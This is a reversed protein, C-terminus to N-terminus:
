VGQNLYIPKLKLKIRMNSIFVIIQKAHTDIKVASLRDSRNQHKVIAFKIAQTIKIPVANACSIVTPNNRLQTM